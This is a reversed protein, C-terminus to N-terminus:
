NKALAPPSATGSRGAEIRAILAKVWARPALRVSSVRGHTFTVIMTDFGRKVDDPHDSECNWYVWLDPSLRYDPARLHETVEAYTRGRAAFHTFRELPIM